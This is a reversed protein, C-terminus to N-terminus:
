PAYTTGWRPSSIHRRYCFSRTARSSSTPFAFRCGPARFNVALAFSSLPPSWSNCAHLFFRRAHVHARMRREARHVLGLTRWSRFVRAAGSWSRRSYVNEGERERKLRSDRWLSDRFLWVMFRRKGRRPHIGIKLGKDQCSLIKEATRRIRAYVSKTICVYM